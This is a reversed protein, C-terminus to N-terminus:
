ETTPLTNLKCGNRCHDSMKRLPCNEYDSQMIALTCIEGFRCNDAYECLKTYKSRFKAFNKAGGNNTYHDLLLERHELVYDRTCGHEVCTAHINLESLSEAVQDMLYRLLDLKTSEKPKRKEEAGNIEEPKKDPM